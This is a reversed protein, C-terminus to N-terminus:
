VHVQWYLSLGAGVVLSSAEAAISLVHMSAHM